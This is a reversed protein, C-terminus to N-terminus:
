TARFSFIRNCDCMLITEVSCLSRIRRDSTLKNSITEQFFYWYFVCVKRVADICIIFIQFVAVEIKEAWVNNRQIVVRGKFKRLAHGKSAVSNEGRSYLSEQWMADKGLRRTLNEATTKAM